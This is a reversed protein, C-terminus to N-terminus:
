RLDNMSEMSRPRASASPPLIYGVASAFFMSAARLLPPQCFVHLDDPRVFSQFPQYLDFFKDAPIARRSGNCKNIFQNIVGFCRQRVVRLDPSHDGFNGPGLNPFQNMPAVPYDIPGLFVCNLNQRQEFSM